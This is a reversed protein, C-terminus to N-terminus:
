QRQKYATKVTLMKRGSQVECVVVLVGGPVIGSFAIRPTAKAVRFESINRPDVIRPIHTFDEPSLAAHGHRAELGEDTHRNCAHRIADTDLVYWYGPEIRFIGANDLFQDVGLLAQLRWHIAQRDESTVVRFVIGHRAPATTQNAAAYLEGIALRLRDADLITVYGAPLRERGIRSKGRDFNPGIPSASGGTM